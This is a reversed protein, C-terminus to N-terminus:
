CRRHTAFMEHEAKRDTVVNAFKDIHCHERTNRQEAPRSLQGTCKSTEALKWFLRDVVVVTVTPMPMTSVAMIIVTVSILTVSIVPMLMVGMSVVRVPMISM